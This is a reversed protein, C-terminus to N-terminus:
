TAVCCVALEDQMPAFRAARGRLLGSPRPKSRRDHCAHNFVLQVTFHAAVPLVRPKGALDDESRRVGLQSSNTEDNM